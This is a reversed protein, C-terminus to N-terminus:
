YNETKFKCQSTVKRACLVYHVHTIIGIKAVFQKVTLQTENLGKKNKKGADSLYETRECWAFSPPCEVSVLKDYTVTPPSETFGTYCKVAFACPLLVFYVFILKLFMKVM